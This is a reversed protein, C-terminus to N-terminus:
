MVRLKFGKAISAASSLVSKQMDNIIKKKVNKDKIIKGINDSLHQSYGGFVDIVLTIQDIKYDRHQLKLNTQIIKYKNSKLEYKVDRNSIWPVTMELLYIKKENVLEIKGDPRLVNRGDEDIERGSFEPINWWFKCQNNEYYPKVQISSYWTPIREILKYEKLLAFTFCKLANDHRSIYMSRALTDCNSLLHKVSEQGTRCLRCETNLIENNSRTLSFTLTPLTQFQLALIESVVYTPCSKWKTLWNFYGPQLSEDELRSNIILGQWTSSMISSLNSNNRHFAMKNHVEKLGCLEEGDKVKIIHRDINLDLNMEEAYVKASTFLRM